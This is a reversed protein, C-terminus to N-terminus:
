SWHMLLVVRMCHSVFHNVVAPQGTAGRALGRALTRRALVRARGRAATAAFRLRAAALGM